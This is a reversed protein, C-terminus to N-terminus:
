EMILQITLIDGARCVQAELNDGSIHSNLVAQLSAEDKVCLGDLQMIIDGPQLGATRTIGSETVEAVYIGAPMDHYDQWFDSVPQGAFGLPYAVADEPVLLDDGQSFAVPPPETSTETNLLELLRFNMVSLATSIGCLFIVVVLLFAIVGSHSKPPQTSGTQYSPQEWSEFQETYKTQQKKKM